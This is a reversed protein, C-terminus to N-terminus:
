KQINQSENQEFQDIVNKHNINLQVHNFPSKSNKHENVTKDNLLEDIQLASPFEMLPQSVDLHLLEPGILTQHPVLCQSVRQKMKEKFEQWKSHDSQFSIEKLSDELKKNIQLIFLSSFIIYEIIKTCNKEVDDLFAM